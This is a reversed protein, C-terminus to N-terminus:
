HGNLVLEPAAIVRTVGPANALMRAGLRTCVMTITSFLTPSGIRRFESRLKQEDIWAVIEDYREQSNRCLLQHRESRNLQNLSDLPPKDVSVLVTFWERAGNAPKSEMWQTDSKSVAPSKKLM